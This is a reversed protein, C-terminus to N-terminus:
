SLQTPPDDCSELAAAVALQGLCLGGDGPPVRTHRSVRFGARTLRDLAEALLLANLFVGGSLVVANLGTDARLRVCVAAVLGALASHFRRAIVERAVGRRVDAGVAAVLPRTDAQLPGSADDLAFPYEGDPEAGAALGELESAAQGEYATRDRLGILAAVADFLRGASSTLPANFRRDIMARVTRLAEPEIRGALLQPDEGADLLHALAMRWPERAARDGGPLPVLRLHAARRVDRYDGVLFEGGWVAGDTGYGSGDFTVGIVRENLGNEAMCAAVHAHHHQVGVLRAGLEAARERAYRTTAYDPHLDHAIV